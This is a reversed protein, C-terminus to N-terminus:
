LGMKREPITVLWKGESAVLKLDYNLIESVRAM